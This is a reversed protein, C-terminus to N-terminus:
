QNFDIKPVTIMEDQRIGVTFGVHPLGTKRRIDNVLKLYIVQDIQMGPANCLKSSYRQITSYEPLYLNKSSSRFITYKTRGMSLMLTMAKSIMSDLAMVNNLGRQNGSSNEWGIAAVTHKISAMTDMCDPDLINGKCKRLMLQEFGRLIAHCHKRLIPDSFNGNLFSNPSQKAKMDM